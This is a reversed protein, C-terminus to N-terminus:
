IPSYDDDVKGEDEGAFKIGFVSRLELEDSAQATKTITSHHTASTRRETLKVVTKADWLEMSINMTINVESGLPVPIDRNKPLREGNIFTGNKAGLDRIFFTKKRLSIMCHRPSVFPQDIIYNCSPDRGITFEAETIPIETVDLGSITVLRGLLTEEEPQEPPPMVPAAPILPQPVPAPTVPQQAALEAMRALQAKQRNSRALLLLLFAVVVILALVFAALVAFLLNDAVSAGALGSRSVPAATPALTPTPELPPPLAAVTLTATQTDSGSLGLADTASITLDITSVTGPTSYDDFTWPINYSGSSDPAPATIVRPARSRGTATDTAELRLTKISRRVGDPFTVSVTIVQEAVDFVVRQGSYAPMRVPAPVASIITVQPPQFVPAYQFTRNAQAGDPLTVTLTVTRQPDLNQNASRYRLTYVRRSNAIADYLVKLSNVATASGDLSLGSGAENNAFLGGGNDALAKHQPAAQPRFRQVLVVNFPIAQGAFISSASVEDPDNLFSGVYLVLRPAAASAAQLSALVTRLTPTIRYVNPSRKLSDVVELAAAQDAVPTIQAQNAQPGLLYFTVSDGAQYYTNFYARLTAQILDIDSGSSLNVVVTLTLPLDAKSTLSLNTSPENLKLSTPPLEDPALGRADTVTFDLEVQGEVLRPEGRLTIQADANSQALGMSAPLALLLLAIILRFCVILKADWISVYHSRPECRM